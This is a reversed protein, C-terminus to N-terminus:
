LHEAVKMAIATLVRNINHPLRPARHRGLWGQMKFEGVAYLADCHRAVSQLHTAQGTTACPCSPTSSFPIPAWKRHKIKALCVSHEHGLELTHHMATVNM